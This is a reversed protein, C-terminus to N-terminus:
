TLPPKSKDLAEVEFVNLAMAVSTFYGVLATLETVGEEGLLDLAAQYASDSVKKKKQLEFCFNYIVTEDPKLSLPTKRAAIAAITEESLGADLAQPVHVQWEYQATWARATVLVGIMRYRASLISLFRLYEGMQQMRSAVEPNKLLLRYPGQVKGRPGRVIEDHVRKQDETLNELDVPQMRSMM